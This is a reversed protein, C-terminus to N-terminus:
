NGIAGFFYTGPEDARYYAALTHEPNFWDIKFYHQAFYKELVPEVAPQILNANANKADMTTLKLLGQQDLLFSYTFMGTATSGSSLGYSFTITLQTASIFRITFSRLRRGAGGINFLSDKADSWRQAFDPSLPAQPTEPTVNLSSFSKGFGMDMYLPLLKQLDGHLFSSADDVTYWAAITERSGPIRDDIWDMVFRNNELYSSIPQLSSALATGNGNASQFSLQLEGEQNFSYAYTIVAQANSGSSTKYDFTATLETETIFIFTLFELTRGGNQQLADYTAQWHSRFDDSLQGNGSLKLGAFPKPAIGLNFHLPPDPVVAASNKHVGPVGYFYSGADDTRYYAALINQSEPIKDDIWGISFSYKEFYNVTIPEIAKAITQANEDASVFQLSINQQADTSYHYTFIGTVEDGGPIQWSFNLTLNQADEFRLLFGKLQRSVKAKVNGVAQKWREMFDASLAKGNSDPMVRLTHYMKGHGMITAAAPQEQRIVLNDRTCGAIMSTIALIYFLIQKKM